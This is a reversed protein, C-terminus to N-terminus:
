PNNRLIRGDSYDRKVLVVSNTTKPIEEPDMWSTIIRSPYFSYGIQILELDM